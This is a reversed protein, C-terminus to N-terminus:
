NICKVYSNLYIPYRGLDGYVFDNPTRNDVNLFRKMAFLHLKEIDRGNEFAWIEAGYQLIPQVQSDFLKSFINFSTCNLKYMARVIGLVARKARNRLDDCTFTFSLRTSFFIGLYKYV